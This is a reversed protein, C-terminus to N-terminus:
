VDKEITFGESDESYISMTAPVYSQENSSWMKYDVYATRDDNARAGEVFGEHRWGDYDCDLRLRPTGKSAADIARVLFTLDDMEVLFQKFTIM